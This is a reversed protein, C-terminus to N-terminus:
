KVCLFTFYDDDDVYTVKLTGDDNMSAYISPDDIEITCIGFSGDWPYSGLEKGKYMITVNKDEAFSLRMANNINDVGEMDTLAGDHEIDEVSVSYWDGIFAKEEEPMLEGSDIEAGERAFIMTVGMGLMNEVSITDGQMVGPMNIGDFTLTIKEEAEEWTGKEAKGNTTIILEGGKNIDIEIEGFQEMEMAIGFMQVSVAVWKGGYQGSDAESGEGCGVTVFIMSGILALVLLLKISKKM